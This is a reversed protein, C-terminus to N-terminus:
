RRPLAGEYREKLVELRAKFEDTNHLFQTYLEPGALPTPPPGGTFPEVVTVKAGRELFWRTSRGEWSGIELGHGDNITDGHIGLAAVNMTFWDSTFIPEM